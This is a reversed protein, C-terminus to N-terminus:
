YQLDQIYELKLCFIEPLVLGPFYLIIGTVPWRQVRKLKRMEETM